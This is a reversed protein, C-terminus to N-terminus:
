RHQQQTGPRIQLGKRALLLFDGQQHGVQLAEENFDSVSEFLSTCLVLKEVSALPPLSQICMMDKNEYPSSTLNPFGM